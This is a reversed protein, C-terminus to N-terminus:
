VFSNAQFIITSMALPMLRSGQVSKLWSALNWAIGVDAGFHNEVLAKKLKAKWAQVNVQSLRTSNTKCWREIFFFFIWNKKFFYLYIILVYNYNKKKNKMKYVRLCILSFLFLNQKIRNSEKYYIWENKNKGNTQNKEM